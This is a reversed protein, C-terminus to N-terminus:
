INSEDLFIKVSVDLINSWIDPYWPRALNVCFNIMM